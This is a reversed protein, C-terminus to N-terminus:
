NEDIYNTFKTTVVKSFHYKAAVGPFFPCLILTSKGIQKRKYKNRGFRTKWYYDSIVYKEILFKYLCM